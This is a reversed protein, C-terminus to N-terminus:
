PRQGLVTYFLVGGGALLLVVALLAIPPGGSPALPGDLAPNGDRLSAGLARCAALQQAHVVAENAQESIDTANVLVALSARGDPTAAGFARYGPFQGTHGWVVGCPLDYGFVGLGAWNTGPGPPSSEGRVTERMVKLTEEGVLEGGLLGGFFRSVDGTTSILAGSAWAASPDLATTVDDPEGTADGEPDYQYGQVHPNPMQPTHPLTTAQLGLPGLIRSRLEQNYSRGTAEEIILGLVINDTDSYEYNTGPEFLLPKSSVFSVIERPSLSKGSSFANLFKEDRVYDPLGSTHRLLHRVTIMDGRALLGPLWSEVTDDLSLTGEEMLDMVLAATFAKTVSAIRFRDAPSLPRESELSAVGARLSESGEPSRIEVSIGPVGAAVAQELASQLEERSPVQEHAEGSSVGGALLLVLTLTSLLLVTPRMTM